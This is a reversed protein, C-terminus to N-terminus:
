RKLDIEFLTGGGYAGGQYTVGLLTNKDRFVLRTFSPSMGDTPTSPFSHAVKYAWTGDRKLKM